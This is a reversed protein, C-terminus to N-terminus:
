RGARVTAEFSLDWEHNPDKGSGRFTGHVVKGPTLSGDAVGCSSPRPGDQLIPTGLFNFFGIECEDRQKANKAGQPFYLTM